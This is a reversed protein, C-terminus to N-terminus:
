YAEIKVTLNEYESVLDELKISKLIKERNAIQSGDPLMLLLDKLYNSKIAFNVNQPITGSESYFYSVNATSIVLGILVGKDTFLGGGSNGPQIPNSIQLLRPDDEIGYLSSIRGTSLRPKGGLIEGYPYGFTFTEVGVRADNTEGFSYSIKGNFIKNSETCGLIAIDNKADQIKIEAKCSDKPSNFRVLLNSHGQIVHYCTAFIGIESLTIGSGISKAIPKKKEDPIYQDKENRFYQSMTPYMKTFRLSNSNSTAARLITGDELVRFEGMAPTGDHLYWIGELLSSYATKRFRAKIRGKKWKSHNSELIFATYDYNDLASDKFIGIRYIIGTEEEEGFTVKIDRVTWIGEIYDLAPIKIDLERKFEKETQKERLPLSLFFTNEAYASISNVLCAVLIHFIMKM